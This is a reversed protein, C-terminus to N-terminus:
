DLLTTIAHNTGTSAISQKCLLTDKQRINILMKSM